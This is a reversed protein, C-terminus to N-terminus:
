WWNTKLILRNWHFNVDEWLQGYAIARGLHDYDDLMPTTRTQGAAPCPAYVVKQDSGVVRRNSMNCAKRGIAKLNTVSLWTTACVPSYYYYGRMNVDVDTYNDYPPDFYTPDDPYFPGGVIQAGILCIVQDGNRLRVTDTPLKGDCAAPGCPGIQVATAAPPSLVIGAVVVALLAGISTTVRVSRM